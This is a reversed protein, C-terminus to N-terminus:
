VPGLASAVRARDSEPLAPGHLDHSARAPLRGEAAAIWMMRQVYGELPDTFTVEALRDLRASAAVFDDHRGQHYATLVAATVPVAAAAIGVLAAECGWMLSPGFMRDEGTVPLRGAAKALGIATQCAVADYLRAMKIAAVGPHALLPRLHEATYSIRGDGPYLDFVILPIGAERWIADHHALPDVGPPPPFVLLADAGAAARAMALADGGGGVGVIVPVGTSKAADLVVRRTGASLYPGRGTHVCVALAGAGDAVLSRLYPELAEHEVEGDAHAPTLAAAALRWRLLERVSAARHDM